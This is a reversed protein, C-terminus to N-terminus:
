IGMNHLLQECVSKADHARLVIENAQRYPNGEVRVGEVAGRIDEVSSVSLFNRGPQIECDASTVWDSALIPVLGFDMAELLTYQTRNGGRNIKSMDVM